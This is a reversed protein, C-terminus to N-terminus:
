SRYRPLGVDSFMEKNLFDALPRSTRKGIM